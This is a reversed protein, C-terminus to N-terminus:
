ECSQTACRGAHSEARSDPEPVAVVVISALWLMCLLVVLRVSFARTPPVTVAMRSPVPPRTQLTHPGRGALAGACLSMLSPGVALTVFVIKKEITNVFFGADVVHFAMLGIAVLSMAVHWLRWNRYRIKMAIRYWSTVVLLVLVLLSVLAALMSWPASLKLYEILTPEAVVLGITHILTLGIAAYSIDAHLSLLTRLARPNGSYRLWLRPSIFPIAVLLGAALMGVAMLADWLLGNQPAAPAVFLLALILTVCGLFIVVFRLPLDATSTVRGPGSVGTGANARAHGPAEIM